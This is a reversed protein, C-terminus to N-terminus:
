LNSFCTYMGQTLNEALSQNVGAKFSAGLDEESVRDDGAMKRIVGRGRQLVGQGVMQDSTVQIPSQQRTSSNTSM